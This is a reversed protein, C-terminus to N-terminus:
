NNFTILNKSKNEPYVVGDGDGMDPFIICMRTNHKEYIWTILDGIKIFLIM